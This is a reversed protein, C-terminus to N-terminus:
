QNEKHPEVPRPQDAGHQKPDRVRLQDFRRTSTQRAGSEWQVQVSKPKVRLVVAPHWHGAVREAWVPTGILTNHWTFRFESM